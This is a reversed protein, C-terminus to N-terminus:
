EISDIDSIKIVKINEDDKKIFYYDSKSHVIKGGVKSLDKLVINISKQCEAGGVASPLYPYIMKSYSFILFILGSTVFFSVIIWDRSYKNNAYKQEQERNIIELLFIMAAVFAIFGFYFLIKAFKQYLFFYKSVLFGTALLTIVIVILQYSNIDKLSIKELRFSYTLLYFFLVACFQLFCQAINIQDTEPLVSFPLFLSFGAIFILVRILFDLLLLGVNYQLNKRTHVAGLFFYFFFLHLFIFSFGVSFSRLSLIDFDELGYKRLDLNIILVGFFFSLPSFILVMRSFFSLKESAIKLSTKDLHNM